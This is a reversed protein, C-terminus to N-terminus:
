QRGYFSTIDFYVTKVDKNKQLTIIDYYRGRISYLVQRDWTYGPYKDKTWLHEARIGAAASKEDVIVPNLISTGIGTTYRPNNTEYTETLKKRNYCGISLLTCTLISMIFIFVKSCNSIRKM